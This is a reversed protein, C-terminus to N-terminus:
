LGFIDEFTCHSTNCLKTTDSWWSLSFMIHKAVNTHGVEVINIGGLIATALMVVYLVTLTMLSPLSEYSMCLIISDLVPPLVLYPFRWCGLTLVTLTMLSPLSEYSMCLVISDLM